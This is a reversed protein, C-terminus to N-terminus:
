GLNDSLDSYHYELFDQFSYKSLPLGNSNFIPFSPDTITSFHQQKLVDDDILADEYDDLLKNDVIESPDIIEGMQVGLTFPKVTLQTLRKFTNNLNTWSKRRIDLKHPNKIFNSLNTQFNDPQEDDNQGNTDPNTPNEAEKEEEKFEEAGKIEVVNACISMPNAGIQLLKNETMPTSCVSTKGIFDPFSDNEDFNISSFGSEPLDKATVNKFRLPLHTPRNLKKMCASMSPLPQYKSDTDDQVAEEEPIHTFIISKDRKMGGGAGKKKGAVAYPLISSSATVTEFSKQAKQADRQLANFEALSIYINLLQVGVPIHFDVSVQDVTSKARYSDSTILLKTLSAPLQSAITKNHYLIAGGLVGKKQQCSQLIQIANLFVNSASKPLRLISINQLINGSYQLIPLFTEFIHYLKESLNKYQPALVSGFQDSITTIDKHYLNLLSTLLEARYELITEPINRDTGVAMVFRGFYKIAFKGSQLSILEPPSFNESLFYATGMLQGCLSLKQNDSVWSPHFYLVASVPDDAETQCCATDYVFIIMM